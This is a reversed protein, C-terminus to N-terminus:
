RGKAGLGPRGGGGTRCRPAGAAETLTTLRGFRQGSAPLRRRAPRLPAGSQGDPPLANSRGGPRRAPSPATGTGPVIALEVPPSGGAEASLRRRRWVKLLLLYGMVRNGFHNKTASATATNSPRAPGAKAAPLTLFMSVLF